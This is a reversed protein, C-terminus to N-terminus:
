QQYAESALTTSFATGVQFKDAAGNLIERSSLAKKGPLQLREIGLATQEGCAVIISKADCYIITGAVDDCGFFDPRVTALHIRLHENNLVTTAIPFPNFARIRRELVPASLTWNLEAEQKTLKHAYTAKIHDQVEPSAKGSALAELTELLADPGALALRDHLISATDGELIPCEYKLLMDGTDLGKDMQMITIGTNMDGAEIARQIPAAGRWRPLLSAHVNICGLKPAGLVAEPLLLGYAVVVMIDAHYNALTAQAEPSKLSLPQQLEINAALACEKVPSSHLKKGRGAPRDPQTYVAVVQHRSQILAELHIAAFEPTGAFLIRLPPALPM